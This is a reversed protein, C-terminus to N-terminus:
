FPWVHPIIALVVVGVLISLPTGVRVYDMFRYGGPGYVMMNTQYGIPTIFSASAGIMIAIIFPMASVDLQNAAALGIPFMLVAAANNTLLETFIVTLVFVMVLTWFPDGGGVHLLVGAVAAAVGTKSLAVGIAFACAIAVILPYDVARRADRWSVCGTVIVALAALLASVFIDVHLAVNALIMAGLIALAGMARRPQVPPTDDVVNVMIFERSQGHERTFESTTELLLTDGAQLVIDGPKRSLQQGRRNVAVVAAGYRDRFRSARLTHGVVPSLRSPVAEVFHRGSDGGVKFVQEDVHALGAVQRVERLGEATGVFVLRDDAELVTDPRVAPRISGMARQVEVLFAGSLNRLKAGVLDRGVLPGGAKVRMELVYERTQRAQDLATRRDPLLWRGVTLLYILGAVAAPLGVWAPDFMHLTPLGGHQQMLGLVVLNTSTGILSCMGGLITAYSLPILLKSVSVKAKRSWTEVAATLMAVVPTNNIFASLSSSIGVLRAQAVFTGHPKGLVWSAVWRIAGTTRLAAVVIFLVAVTLVATNSFGALAEAPTLVGGVLLVAVAGLLVIDPTLREWVLCGFVAVVVGITLWAHFGLDAFTVADM